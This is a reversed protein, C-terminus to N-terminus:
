TPVSFFGSKAPTSATSIVAAAAVTAAHPLRVFVDLYGAFGRLIAASSVM